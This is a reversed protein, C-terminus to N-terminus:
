GGSLLRQQKVSNFNLPAKAVETITISLTCELWWGDNGIPGKWDESVSTMIGSIVANGSIYLTVSSTEVASGKYDPYCNAKCAQILEYARGDNHNGTWMDRHFHFTFTQERPGSSTYLQWPEYQYLLDPMTTYNAKVSNSLEEPYCPFEITSDDLSSYLTIEGWPIHFWQFVDRPAYEGNVGSIYSSASSADYSNFISPDVEGTEQLSTRVSNYTKASISEGNGLIQESDQLIIEEPIRLKGKLTNMASMIKWGNSDTLAATEFVDSDDTLGNLLAIKRDTTVEDTENITSNCLSNFARGINPTRKLGNLHLISDVNEQGVIQSFEELTMNNSISLFQM